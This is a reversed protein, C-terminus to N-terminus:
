FAEHDRQKSDSSIKLINKALVVSFGDTGLGCAHHGDHLAASLAQFAYQCDDDSGSFALIAQFRLVGSIVTAV